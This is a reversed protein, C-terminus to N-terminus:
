RCEAYAKSAIAKVAGKVVGESLDPVTGLYSGCFGSVVPLVSKNGDRFFSDARCSIFVLLDLFTRMEEGDLIRHLAESFKEPDPDGGCMSRIKEEDYGLKKLMALPKEPVPAETRNLLACRVAARVAKASAIGIKSGTGTYTIREGTKPSIVAMSDSTTGTERFGLDGMAASKGEVVPMFINIKGADTIPSETILAINITGAMMRAARTLSIEHRSKWDELVDGAVVHNSLGGTAVAAASVGGFVAEKINFVYDVEAATMMGVSNAPLKLLDRVSAAHKVPDSEDYDHPVQMIFLADTETMGGNLIASSMCEMTEKFRVIGVTMGNIKTKEISSIYKLVFGGM